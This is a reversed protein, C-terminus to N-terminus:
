LRSTFHEFTKTVDAEILPEPEAPTDFSGSFLSLSPDDKRKLLSEMLAWTFSKVEEIGQLEQQLMRRNRKERSKRGM